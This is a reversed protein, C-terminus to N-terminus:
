LKAPFYRHVYLNILSSEKVIRGAFLYVQIIYIEVMGPLPPNIM